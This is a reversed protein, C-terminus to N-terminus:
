LCYVGPRPHSECGEQPDWTNCNAAQTYGRGGALASQKAANLTIVTAKDLFLKKNLSLKKKKMVYLNLVSGGRDKILHSLVM